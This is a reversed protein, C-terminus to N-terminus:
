PDWPEIAFRSSILIIKEPPTMHPFNGNKRLGATTLFPVIKCLKKKGSYRNTIVPQHMQPPKNSNKSFKHHFFSLNKLM